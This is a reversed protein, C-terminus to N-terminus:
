DRPFRGVGGTGDFGWGLGAKTQCDKMVLVELTSSGAGTMEGALGDGVVVGGAEGGDEGVGDMFRVRAKGVRKWPRGSGVLGGAFWWM